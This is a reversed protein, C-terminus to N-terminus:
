QPSYGHSPFRIFELVGIQLYNKQLLCKHQWPTLKQKRFAPILNMANLAAADYYGPATKFAGQLGTQGSILGALLRSPRVLETRGQDASIM